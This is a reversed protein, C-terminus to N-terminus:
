CQPPEWDSPAIWLTYGMASLIRGITSIRLDKHGAEIHWLYSSPGLQKLLLGQMERLERLTQGVLYPDIKPDGSLDLRRLTM